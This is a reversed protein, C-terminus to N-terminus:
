LLREHFWENEVSENIVDAIYESTEITKEKNIVAFYKNCYFGRM